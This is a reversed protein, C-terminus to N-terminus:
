LGRDKPEPLPPIEARDLREIEAVILAAARVLNRRRGKPKWAQDPFPWSVEPEREFRKAINPPYCAYRAYCAAAMALEGSTHQDDHAESYGEEAKQREREAAISAIARMM